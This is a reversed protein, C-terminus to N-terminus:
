GRRQAAGRRRRNAAGREAVRRRRFADRGLLSGLRLVRLPAGGHGQDGARRRGLASRGRDADRTLNVALELTEGQSMMPLRPKPPLELPAIASPHIFLQRGPLWHGAGVAVWRIKWTADDFLFDKVVGVDGDSARVPCGELGSVAFLM